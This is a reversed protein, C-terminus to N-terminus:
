TREVKAKRVDQETHKYLFARVAKNFEQAAEVNVAHGAEVDVIELMPMHAKAYDKFPEFRKERKGCVLLTPVSNKTIMARVSVEPLTYRMTNAAGLPSISLSDKILAARVAEPLQRAHVPHIPLKELGERGQELLKQAFAEATKKAEDIKGTEQLASTSNTFVQAIVREPHELAYRLTIGAGLSQGCLLWRSVGLHMRINEFAKVYGEPHYADPTEPTPSRGHGLLEVVVPQTVQSLAEINLMWQARSCLFGHVLLLYPGEGRHVEWYPESSTDLNDM